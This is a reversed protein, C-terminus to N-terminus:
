QESNAAIWRLTTAIGTEYPTIAQRGLLGELKCADYSVPKMYEPAIQLMGRLKKNFLSIVRLAMMGASRLKVPRGLARTCIEAFQRDTLPGGGPLCWHNGAAAPQADLTAAIRMADPVYVYERAVAAKGLWNVTKAKAAEMLANQLTSVNLQPGYFDPPHLIAAGADYLIDEAARRWRVWPPGGSRPHNEDMRARMQPYYSWYSSVQLCRAKTQALAGALNRATVPHLHMQDGPLGICDYILDCGEVAHLTEGADLMDAPRKEIASDPFVRALKDISRAVVRV